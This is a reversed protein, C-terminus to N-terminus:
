NVRPGGPDRRDRTSGAASYRTRRAAQPRRWPKASGLALASACGTRCARTRHARGEPTRRELAPARATRAVERQRRASGDAPDPDRQRRRAAAALGRVHVARAIDDAECRTTEAANDFFPTDVMGPEILTVRVGTDNLEQRLPRAWATVAWKTARTSRARCRAAAPSRAPSCCTARRSAQARRDDRPDNARRRLRQDPGDGELARADGEAFGRPAASAPTPSCSTSGATASSRRSRGAGRQDDWETVDCRVAIRASTAASSPPSRTSSTRALARRARARYGAEAAHRATAAGIGTSAGTILFVPDDAM